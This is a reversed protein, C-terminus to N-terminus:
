AGHGHPTHALLVAPSRCWETRRRPTWGRRGVAKRPTACPAMMPRFGHLRWPRRRAGSDVRAQTGSPHRQPGGRPGGAAKDSDAVRDGQAQRMTDGPPCACRLALLPVMARAASSLRRVPMSLCWPAGAGSGGRTGRIARVKEPRGGAAPCVITVRSRPIARCIRPCSTWISPEERRISPPGSSRACCWRPEQCSSTWGVLFGHLNHMACRGSSAVLGGYAACVARCLHCSQGCIPCHSSVGVCLRFVVLRRMMIARPSPM